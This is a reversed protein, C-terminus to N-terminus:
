ASVSSGARLLPCVPLHVPPHVLARPEHHGDLGEVLGADLLLDDGQLTQPKLASVPRVAVHPWARFVLHKIKRKLRNQNRFLLYRLVFRFHQTTIKAFVDNPAGRPHGRWILPWFQSLVDM